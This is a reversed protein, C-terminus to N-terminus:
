PSRDISWVMYMVGGSTCGSPGWLTAGEPIEAVRSFTGDVTPGDFEIWMAEEWVDSHISSCAAAYSLPESRADKVLCKPVEDPRHTVEQVALLGHLTKGGEDLGLKTVLGSAEQNLTKRRHEPEGLSRAKEMDLRIQSSPGARLGRQRQFQFVKRRHHRTVRRSHSTTM